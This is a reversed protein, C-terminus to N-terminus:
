SVYSGPRVKEASTRVAKDFEAKYRVQAVRFNGNPASMLAKRRALFQGSQLRYGSEGATAVNQMALHVPPRSVTLEMPSFGTSRHVQTNHGYSLANAFRDLIDLHDTVYARLAVLITRNYSEAQGNAKPHYGGHVYKSNGSDLLRSPLM